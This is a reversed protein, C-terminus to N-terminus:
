RINHLGSLDIPNGMWDVGYPATQPDYPNVTLWQQGYPTIETGQYIPMQAPQGASVPGYGGAGGAAAAAAAAAQQQAIRQAAAFQAQMVGQAMQAEVDGVHELGQAGARLFERLGMYRAQEAQNIVDQASVSSQGSELMGRAALAAANRTNAQAEQLKVQGYVSYKNNIAAQITDKNIYKGLNGLQSVDPVGLDIFNQRLAAKMSSRARAVQEAMFAQAQAVEWSSGILGTWDV